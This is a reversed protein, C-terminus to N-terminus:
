ANRLMGILRKHAENLLRMSLPLGKKSRMQKRSYTLADVYNCVQKVDEDDVADTKGVAEYMLLDVLTAQTGEIQSTVVAEKRVFSYLLWDLSPVMSGALKLRAIATEARHLMSIFEDDMDLPPKSPPLPAPVFANVTEGATSVKEYTGVIRAM